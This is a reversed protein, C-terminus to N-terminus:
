EERIRFTELDLERLSWSGIVQGHSSLYMRESNYLTVADVNHIKGDGNLIVTIPKTQYINNVLDTEEEIVVEQAKLLEEIVWMAIVEQRVM